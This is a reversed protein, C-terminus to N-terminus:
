VHRGLIKLWGKHENLMAYALRYADAALIEVEGAAFGGMRPRLLCALAQGAFWDLLTLEELGPCSPVGQPNNM